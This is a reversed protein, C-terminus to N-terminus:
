TKMTLREGKKKREVMPEQRGARHAEGFDVGAKVHEARTANVVYAPYGGVGGCPMEPDPLCTFNAWNNWMVSVPDEAHWAYSSWGTEAM